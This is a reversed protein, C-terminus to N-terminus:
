RFHCRGYHLFKSGNLFYWRERACSCEGDDGCWWHFSTSTIRVADSSGTSTITISVSTAAGMIYFNQDTSFIGANGQVLVNVTTAAGGISLGVGGNTWSASNLTTIGLNSAAGGVVFGSAATYWASSSTILLNVTNLSGAYIGVSGTNWYSASTITFSSSTIAGVVSIGNGTASFTSSSYCTITSSAMNSNVIVNSGGYATILSTQSYMWLSTVSGTFYMNTTGALFSTSTASITVTTATGSQFTGSGSTITSSVVLFTIQTGGNAVVLGTGGTKLQRVGNCNTVSITATAAATLYFANSSGTTTLQSTDWRLLFNSFTSYGYIASYGPINHVCGGEVIVTSSSVTNDFEIFHCSQSFSSGTFTMPVSTVTSQFVICGLTSSSATITTPSGQAATFTM